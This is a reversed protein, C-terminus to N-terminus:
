RVDAEWSSSRLRRYRGHAMAQWSQSTAGYIHVKDDKELGAHRLGAGLSVALREFEIYSLYEYPGLEFYTWKKDVEKVVGDENKKVKKVEEHTRILKRSGLAPANGFKRAARTLVDHVTKVGAEPTSILSDKRQAHRRPVTEGAVKVAGPVPETQLRNHYPRPQPHWTKLDVM